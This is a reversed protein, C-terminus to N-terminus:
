STAPSVFIGLRKAEAVAQTRREVDLKRYISQTHAKVTHLSIKLTDSIEQNSLGSAILSIVQHERNSLLDGQRNKKLLKPLVIGLTDIPEVLGIVSCKHMAEEIKERASKTDDSLYFRQAQALIVEAELSLLKNSRALVLLNELRRDAQEFAGLCIEVLAMALILRPLFEVSGPPPSLADDSEYTKLLDSFILSAASYNRELYLIKGRAMLLIPRYILEDIHMRQMTRDANHIREYARIFDGEFADLLALGSLGQIIRPDVSNKYEHLSISLEERALKYNGQRFSIHGLRLKIRDTVPTDESLEEKLIRQARLLSDRAVSLPERHEIMISNDLEAYAEFLSSQKERALKLGLRNFQEAEEFNFNTLHQQTLASCVIVKLEWADEDLWELAEELHERASEQEGLLHAKWGTMAQWQALLGQQLAANPQPFFRCFKDLAQQAKALQGSLVLAGTILCLLRPARYFIDSSTADYLRFLLASSEGSMSKEDTILQMMSLADEDQGAHAAHLTASHWDGNLSFWQSARAHWKMPLKSSITYHKQIYSSLPRFVQLWGPKNEIPEIFAGFLDPDQIFNNNEETDELVFSLLETNFQELHALTIWFELYNEPLQSLFEAELYLELSEPFSTIPKSIYDESLYCRMAVCWGETQQHILIVEENNLSSKSLSSLELSEERTFSLSKMGRISTIEGEISLKILQHLLSRRSTIWWTIHYNNVSLIKELLSDTEQSPIRCYDDIIVWVDSTLTSLHDLISGIGSGPKLDLADSLSALLEEPTPQALPLSLKLIQTNEPSRLVCEDLLVTKGAGAPGSIIKIRTSAEILSSTLRPRALHIRPLHNMAISRQDQSKKIIM